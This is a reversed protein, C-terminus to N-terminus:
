QACLSTRVEALVSSWDGPAPQRFLRMTPYWPSDSRDEMWRWDADAKLLLWTPVGLAGALHAVMTDVAIVLDVARMRRALSLVNPTSLDAIGAIPPALQLNFVSARGRVAEVLSAPDVSRESDWDGAQAVLGVSFRASVRPAARVRFYPVTAPLTALTVRLAHALEMSEIDVEYEVDPTGDHLPLLEFDGDLTGLLPLLSSQALVVVSAAIGGLLPLFRAFQITDGLGHYCRVLVRKGEFTRGDWIWQEHRPLTWDPGASVREALVRDSLTWARPFDGRRMAALWAAAPDQGVTM